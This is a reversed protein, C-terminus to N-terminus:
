PAVDPVGRSCIVSSGTDVKNLQGIKENAAEVAVEIVVRIARTVLRLVSESTGKKFPKAGLAILDLVHNDNIAQLCGPPLLSRLYNKSM